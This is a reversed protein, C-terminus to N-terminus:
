IEHKTILIGNKFNQLEYKINWMDHKIDSLYYKINVYKM